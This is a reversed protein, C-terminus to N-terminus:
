HASSAVKRRRGFSNYHMEIQLKIKRVLENVDFPKAIFDDPNAKKLIDTMNAHASFMIVPINSTKENAKLENCVDIGSIGSLVVDLLILHPKFTSTKLMVDEGRPIAMVKFGYRKLVIKVVWLVDSNDEVILIRNM